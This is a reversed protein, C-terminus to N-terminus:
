VHDDPLSEAFADLRPEVVEMYYRVMRRYSAIGRRRGPAGSGGRGAGGGAPRPRPAGGRGAVSAEWFAQHHVNEVTGSSFRYREPVTRRLASALLLARHVPPPHDLRKQELISLDEADLAQYLLLLTFVRQFYLDLLLDQTSPFDGAAETIALWMDLAHIDADLELYHSLGGAPGDIVPGPCDLYALHGRLAHAAEHLYVHEAIMGLFRWSWDPRERPTLYETLFEPNALAHELNTRITFPLGVCMGIAHRRRHQLTGANAGRRDLFFFDLRQLRWGYRRELEKKTVRVIRRCYTLVERAEGRHRAPTTIRGYRRVDIRSTWVRAISVPRPTSGVVPRPPETPLVRRPRRSGRARETGRAGRRDLARGSSRPRHRGAEHHLLRRLAPAVPRLSHRARPRDGRGRRRPRHPADPHRGA